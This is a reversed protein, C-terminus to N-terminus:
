STGKGSIVDREEVTVPHFQSLLKEVFARDVGATEGIALAFRDDTVRLDSLASRRGPRLGSSWIFAVVTGVGACFVMVEFTVPIFAPLSNWPKGGVNIPWSVASAWYQFLLISGAGLLGLVFCVWTLRSPRFGMVRDLGHIAHPTFADVIRLGEKRAAAAAHLLDDEREFVAVLSGRKGEGATSSAASERVVPASSRVPAGAHRAPQLVAKIEAIAIVPVFRCFLLFCTFFLGFSGVLTAIEISTPSYSAWSSPLYDRELSSVIIIFREFWMGVNVLLSIIFVATLTRRVRAFWLVQPILVNCGVMIWYGWALPGTARNIFAFQEYRNGSYFAIFFETAYALGVLGSTLIILKCMVDVHRVTIYDELKMTKRAVLMLTLVMAMGSFIAGAVFYPPFITTHWGPVVATAFDMSVITHVSLVLPTALGALLLYVAEYRHWVSYSANWGLSLWSFIRARTRSFGSEPSKMRDRITALDPLLGIYWFIASITLYTTIAFFDWILPSRFNIWLSGRTNPYPLMWFALWPRGMHIVPFLGACMVAFLTMAEAARNVSTRWRQRFLFLIASILTGAHGIGIWFVFNTIDFAWGVTSNLGWTGIGTVTQYSVAVVGLMLASFSLGLGLWWLLTPKGDLAGCVDRTVDAASKNGKILPAVPVPHTAVADAM